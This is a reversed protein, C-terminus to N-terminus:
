VNHISFIMVEFAKPAVSSHNTMSDYLSITHHAFDVAIDDRQNRLNAITKEQIQSKEEHSVLTSKPQNSDVPNWPYSGPELMKSAV